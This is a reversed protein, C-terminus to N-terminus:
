ERASRERAAPSRNRLDIDMSGRTIAQCNKVDTVLSHFSSFLVSQFSIGTHYRLSHATSAGSRLSPQSAVGIADELARAPKEM